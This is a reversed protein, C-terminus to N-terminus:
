REDPLVMEGTEEWDEAWTYGLLLKRNVDSWNDIMEGLRDVAGEITKGYATLGVQPVRAAYTVGDDGEFTTFEEVQMQNTERIINSM